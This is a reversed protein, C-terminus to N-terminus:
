SHDNADHPRRRVVIDVPTGIPLSQSRPDDIPLIPGGGATQGPGSATDLEARRGEVFPQALADLASSQEVGRGVAPDARPLAEGGGELDEQGFHRRREGADLVDARGAIVEREALASCAALEGDASGRGSEGRAGRV